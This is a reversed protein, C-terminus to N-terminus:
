SRVKIAAPMESDQGWVYVVTVRGAAVIHRYVYQTSHANM